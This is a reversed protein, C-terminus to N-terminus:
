VFTQNIIEKKVDIWFIKGKHAYHPHNFVDLKLIEDVLKLACKRSNAFLTESGVQGHANATFSKILKKAKDKPKM